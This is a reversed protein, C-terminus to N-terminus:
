VSVFSILHGKNLEDQGNGTTMKAIMMMASTTTTMTMMMKIMLM